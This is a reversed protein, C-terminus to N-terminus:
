TTEKPSLKSQQYLSKTESLCLGSLFFFFLSFLEKQYYGLAVIALLVLGLRWYRRYPNTIQHIGFSLLLFSAGIVILPLSWQSNDCGWCIYIITSIFYVYWKKSLDWKPIIEQFPYENKM